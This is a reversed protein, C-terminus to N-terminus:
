KGLYSFSHLPFTEVIYIKKFQFAGHLITSRDGSNTREMGRQRRVGASSDHRENRNSSTLNGQLLVQCLLDARPAARASFAKTDRGAASPDASPPNLYILCM